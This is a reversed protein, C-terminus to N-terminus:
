SRASGGPEYACTGRISELPLGAANWLKFRDSWDLVHAIAHYALHQTKTQMRRVTTAFAALVTPNGDVSYLDILMVAARLARADTGTLPALCTKGLNDKLWPFLTQAPLKPASM